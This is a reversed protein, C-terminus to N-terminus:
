RHHSGGGSGGSSHGGGSYGGGGGGCDDDSLRTKTTTTRVFKDYQVHYNLSKKNVYSTPSLAYNFQYRSKVVAQFLLALLLSIIGGIVGFRVVVGNDPYPNESTWVIKGNEVHMYKHYQDDYVWYRDPIGADYWYKVEDAFELIAGHVDESGVPYLYSDLADFISNLRNSSNNSNTIYFQAMGRTTIHDCPEYGKLDMYYLISDSKEGFLEICSKDCFSEIAIDSLEETGCVVAIDFGTEDSAKQLASECERFQESTLRKGEDFIRVEGASANLPHLLFLFMATMLIIIWKKM